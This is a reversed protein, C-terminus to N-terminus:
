LAESEILYKKDIQGALALCMIETVINSLRFTTNDQNYYSMFREHEKYSDQTMCMKCTDCDNIFKNFTITKDTETKTRENALKKYKEVFYVFSEHCSSIMGDPLFGIVNYGSGCTYHCYDYTFPQNELFNSFPTIYRYYRFYGFTQNEKEIERCWKCIKAFHEGIKKTVPSPDATNPVCFIVAINKKNLSAIKHIFNEEIFRYYEIIKEKSDLALISSNDLTGKTTVILKVNDPMENKLREVFINFNNLCKKTTGKGRNKDNIYEPGDVSLQLRVTFRRPSFEKFVNLLNIIKDPWSPFSFNTSSYFTDFYLYYNCLQRILNHMREMKLFPEGGWTEIQRLQAPSPFYKKVQNFYYDGKFSEGLVKDIDKLIPNKDICCYNCNLNCVGCSYFIATDRNKNNLIIPECVM